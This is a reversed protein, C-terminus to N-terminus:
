ETLTIVVDEVGGKERRRKGKLGRKALLLCAPFSPTAGGQLEWVVGGERGGEGGGGGLFLSFLLARSM